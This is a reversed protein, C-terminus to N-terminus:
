KGPSVVFMQQQKSGLQSLLCKNNNVEWTLCCVDSCMHEVQHACDMLCYPQRAVFGGFVICWDVRVASVCVIALFSVEIGVYAKMTINQTDTLVLYHSEQSKNTNQLLPFTSLLWFLLMHIQAIYMYISWIQDKHVSM